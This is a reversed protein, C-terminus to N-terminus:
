DVEIPINPEHISTNRKKKNQKKRQKKLRNIWLIVGTVPFTFGAVCSIFAVIRGPLGAISGVHITYFTSRVRQGLNRESFLLTGALQGSYQDFFYQDTAREHAASAAMVTTSYAAASDKPLNLQIYIADPIKSQVSKLVSEISVTPADQFASAPPEPRKNESNTAWYIGDNFWEFSWALGTFAFAFLFLSTYFGIVIHLDHNIRKWKSWKITLHQRLKAMTKPWWLIIGTILIFLFILTASGVIFKGTDGLLLWRHLSFITFFFPSRSEYTGIVDGTYPNVFGTKGRPGDMTKKAGEPKASADKKKEGGSEGKPKNDKETYSVELTRNREAYVKVGSVKAGKVGAEFKRVISDLPMRESGAEVFYREPYLTHQFEKEFVLVAGTFCVVLIVLGATLGLYLHINRFFVKM